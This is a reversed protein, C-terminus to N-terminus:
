FLQRDPFIAFVVPSLSMRGFWVRDKHIRAFLNKQNVLCLKLQPSTFIWKSSLKKTTNVLCKNSRIWVLNNSSEVSHTKWHLRTTWVRFINLREFCEYALFFSVTCRARYECSFGISCITCGIIITTTQLCLEGEASRRRQKTKM